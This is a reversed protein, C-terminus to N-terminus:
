ALVNCAKISFMRSIQLVLTYTGLQDRKFRVPDASTYIGKSDARFEPSSLSFFTFCRPLLDRHSQDGIPQPRHILPRQIQQRSYSDILIGDDLLFHPILPSYSMNELHAIAKM